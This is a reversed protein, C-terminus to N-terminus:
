PQEKKIELKLFSLIKEINEISLKDRGLLYQSIAQKSIGIHDSLQQQSVKNEKMTKKIINRIM